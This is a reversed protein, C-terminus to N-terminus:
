IFFFPKEEAKDTFNWNDIFDVIERDHQLTLNNDDETYAEYIISSVGGDNLPGTVYDPSTPNPPVYYTMWEFNDCIAHALQNSLTNNERPTFIFRAVGWNGNSYHADVAFTFNNEIMDPVAYEQALLQGNYRSQSYDTSDSTVNIKYLYYSYNLNNAKEKFAQEMLRHAGQERPHVGLIYAIKVESNEDGYPGERYVAGLSNNGILTSAVMNESENNHNFSLSSALLFIILILALIGIINRAMKPNRKAFQIIKSIGTLIAILILKLISLLQYLVSELDFNTQNKQKNRRNQSRNTNQRYLSPKNNTNRRYLSPKKNNVM